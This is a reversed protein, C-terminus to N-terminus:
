PRRRASMTLRVYDIRPSRPLEGAVRRVFAPRLEQPLRDLHTGLIMTALYREPDEPWVPEVHLGAVVDVFGARRLRERAAEPSSFNWPGAWGAFHEAFQAEGGVRAAADQVAAINGEGGCQALLRGGPRLAAHLRAFLREHDPIWHFVASSFVVDVPEPLELELLDAVFVTARPDGALEAKAREVMAPSGDVAVVRGRPLRDLIEKTVAGSGCGADLVTEDGGLGLRDLLAHGWAQVPAAVDDYVAADWDRPRDGPPM